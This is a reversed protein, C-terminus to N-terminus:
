CVKFSLVPILPRAYRSARTCAQAVVFLSYNASQRAVALWLMFTIHTYFCLGLLLSYPRERVRAHSQRAIGPLNPLIIDHDKVKGVLLEAGGSFEVHVKVESMGERQQQTYYLIFFFRLMFTIHTYFCLGLLLSYPRERVRAHSQRAIGPLNPLIIDHDKVKGVLLEAGGSFEVHVKVESM